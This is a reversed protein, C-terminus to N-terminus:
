ASGSSRRRSRPLSRWSMWSLASASSIATEGAARGSTRQPELVERVSSEVERLLHAVIHSASAPRPDLSLILCADSFFAAPGEGVMERLQAAVSEQRPSLAVGPAGGWYVGGLRRM